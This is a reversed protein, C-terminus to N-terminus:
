DELIVQKGWKRKYYNEVGELSYSAFVIEYQHQIAMAIIVFLKDNPDLYKKVNFKCKKFIGNISFYIKGTDVNMLFGFYDGDVVDFNNEDRSDGIRGDMCRSDYGSIWVDKKKQNNFNQLSFFLSNGHDSNQPCGSM